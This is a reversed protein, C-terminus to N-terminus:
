VFAFVKAARKATTRKGATVGVVGADLLSQFKRRFNGPDQPAGLVAHYAARLEAVTFAAPVLARALDDVDDRLKELARDLITRHDFALTVKALDTVSWWQVSAADSGARVFAALEPRVVALFAVSIVRARPDRDPAGFVHVQSLPISASPPLHTEELLERRAAADLDEGQEAATSGEGIRVFGGPLALQGVPALGRRIVLVKLESDLVTCAAVDVAVLPRPHESVLAVEANRAM